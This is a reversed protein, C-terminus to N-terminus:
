PNLTPFSIAAMLVIKIMTLLLRGRLAKSNRSWPGRPNLRSKTLFLAFVSERRLAQNVTEM